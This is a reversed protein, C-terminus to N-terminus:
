LIDVIFYFPYHNAAKPRSARNVNDKAQRRQGKAPSIAVNAITDKARCEKQRRVCVIQDRVWHRCGSQKLEEELKSKAILYGFVSFSSISRPIFFSNETYSNTLTLTEIKAPFQPYAQIQLCIFGGLDCGVLHVKELHLYLCFQRITRM